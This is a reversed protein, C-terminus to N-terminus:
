GSTSRLRLMPVGRGPRPLFPVTDSRGTFAFVSGELVTDVLSPRFGGNTDGGGFSHLWDSQTLAAAERYFYLGFRFLLFSLTAAMM